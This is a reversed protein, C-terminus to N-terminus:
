LSCASATLKFAATAEMFNVNPSNRECCESKNASTLNAPNDCKEVPEDM